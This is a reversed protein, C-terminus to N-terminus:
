QDVLKGRDRLLDREWNRLVDKPSGRVLRYNVEHFGAQFTGATFTEFDDVLREIAARVRALVGPLHHIVQSIQQHDLHVSAFLKFESRFHARGHFSMGGAEFHVAQDAHDLCEGTRRDLHFGVPVGAQTQFQGVRLNQRRCNKRLNLGGWLRFRLL